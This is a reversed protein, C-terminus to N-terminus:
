CRSVDVCKTEMDEFRRRREGFDKDATLLIAAHARALSLVDPDGIGPELEALYVLNHGDRRLREVTPGEVSEDAVLKM